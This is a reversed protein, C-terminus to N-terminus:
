AIRAADFAGGAAPAGAIHCVKVNQGRGGGLDAGLRQYNVTQVKSTQIKRDRIGDSAAKSIWSEGARLTRKDADAKRTNAKRAKAIDIRGTGGAERSGVKQLRAGQSKREPGEPRPM